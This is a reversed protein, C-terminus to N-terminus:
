FIYEDDDSSDDAWSKMPRKAPVPLPLIKPVYKETTQVKVEAEVEPHIVINLAFSYDIPQFHKAPACLQPFEDRPPPSNSPSRPVFNRQVSGRKNVPVQKLEQEDDSDYLCSFTNTEKKISKPKEVKKVLKVSKNKFASCYKLTHGRKFCYRCEIALLTPCTIKSNPDRTERIFHSRYETESKGADQCVKCFKQNSSMKTHNSQSQKISNAKHFCLMEIKKKL